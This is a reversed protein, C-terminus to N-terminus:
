TVTTGLLADPPLSVEFRDARVQLADLGEKVQGAQQVVVPCLRVIHLKFSSLATQIGLQTQSPLNSTCSCKLPCKLIISSTTQLVTMIMQLLRSLTSITMTIWTSKIM